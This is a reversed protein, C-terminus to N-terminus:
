IGGKLKHQATSVSAWLADFCKGCLTHGKMSRPRRAMANKSRVKGGFSYAKAPKGCNECRQITM